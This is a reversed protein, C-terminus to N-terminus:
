ALMMPGMLTKDSTLTQDFWLTSRTGVDTFRMIMSGQTRKRKQGAAQALEGRRKFKDGVGTPSEEWGYTVARRAWDRGGTIWHCPNYANASFGSSAASSDAGKSTWDVNRSSVNSALITEFNFQFDKTGPPFPIKPLRRGLSHPLHM